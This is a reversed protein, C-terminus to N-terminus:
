KLKEYGKNLRYYCRQYVRKTKFIAFKYEKKFENKCNECKV